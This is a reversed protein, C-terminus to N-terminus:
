ARGVVDLQRGSQVLTIADDGTMYRISNSALTVVQSSFGSVTNLYHTGGTPRYIILCGSAPVPGASSLDISVVARDVTNRRIEVTYGYLSLPSPSANRLGIFKDASTMSGVPPIGEHTCVDRACPPEMISYLTLSPLANESGGIATSSQPANDSGGTAIVAAAVAGVAIVTVAVSAVIIAALHRHRGM